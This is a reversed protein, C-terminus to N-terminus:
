TICCNLVKTCTPQLVGVGFSKEILNYQYNGIAIRGSTGTETMASTSARSGKDSYGLVPFPPTSHFLVVSIADSRKSRHGPRSHIRLTVFNAGVQFHSSM